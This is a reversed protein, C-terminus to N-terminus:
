EAFRCCCVNLAVTIESLTIGDLVAQPVSFTMPTMRLFARSAQPTLAYTARVTRSEVVTARDTLYDGVVASDYGNGSQLYPAIATRIEQLYGNDPFVKILLGGPKLIRKFERYDAPTLIDLVVDASHPQFPLNKVDCVLWNACTVGAAARQVAARSIDTGFVHMAPFRRAMEETHTGEGCGADVLLGDQPAHHSAILQAICDRLPEYYPGHMIESRAAFLKDDYKDVAQRHQPVVNVYGRSSIDFCHNQGCRLSSGNLAFATGCKPCRLEHLVPVLKQVVSELKM